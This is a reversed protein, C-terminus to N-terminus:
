GTLSYCHDWPGGRATQRRYGHGGVVIAFILYNINNVFLSLFCFLLFQVCVCWWTRNSRRMPQLWGTMEATQPKILGVSVSQGSRGSSRLCIGIPWRLRGYGMLQMSRCFCVCVCTLMLEHHYWKKFVIITEWPQM